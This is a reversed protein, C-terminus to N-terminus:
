PHSRELELELTRNEGPELNLLLPALPRYGLPADVELTYAGPGPTRFRREFLQNGQGHVDGAGDMSRLRVAPGLPVEVPVGGDRLRLTVVPADRGRLIHVQGDTHLEITEREVPGGQVSNMGLFPWVHVLGPPARLVWCQEEPSWAVYSETWSGPGGVPGSNWRLVPRMPFLPDHSPDVIRLELLQTLDVVFDLRGGPPQQLVDRDSLPHVELLYTHMELEPLSWAFARAGGDAHPAREAWVRQSAENSPGYLGIPRFRLELREGEFSAPVRVIGAAPAPSLDPEPGCVLRVWTPRGAVLELERQALAPLPTHPKWLASGLELAVRYTGPRLRSFEFTGSRLVRVERVIRPSGIEFLRLWLDNSRGEVTVEVLLEAGSELAIWREGGYERDIRVSRGAYGPAGVRVHTARGLVPHEDLLVPSALPPLNCEAGLGRVDNSVPEVCVERLENGSVADVVRLISSCPVTLVVALSGDLPFATDASPEAVGAAHRGARPARIALSTWDESAEVSASWVGGEFSVHRTELREGGSFALYFSGSAEVPDGAADIVEVSGSLTMTRVAPAFSAAGRARVDGRMQQRITPALASSEGAIVELAGGDAPANLARDEAAAPHVGPAVGSPARQESRGAFFLALGLGVALAVCLTIQLPRQM